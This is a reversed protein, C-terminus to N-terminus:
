VLVYKFFSIPHRAPTVDNENFDDPAEALIDELYDYMTFIVKGDVSWDITMGLYEHVKGYSAVLLEGESGFVENLQDIIKDLEGQQLHSLKLDDIHFQITCQHDNIMKNFTCEDYENMEFGMKTLVGKM